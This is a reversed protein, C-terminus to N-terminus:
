RHCAVDVPGKTTGLKGILELTPPVIGHSAIPVGTLKHYQGVFLSAAIGVLYGALIPKSLFNATASLKVPIARLTSVSEPPSVKM